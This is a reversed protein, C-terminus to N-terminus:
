EGRGNTDARVADLLEEVVMATVSRARPRQQRVLNDSLTMLMGRLEALAAAQRSAQAAPVALGDAARARKAVQGEAFPDGADAVSLSPQVRGPASRALNGAGGAATGRSRGAARSGTGVENSNGSDVARQSRTAPM